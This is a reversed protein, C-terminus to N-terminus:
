ADHPECPPGWPSDNVCVTQPAVPVLPILGTRVGTCVPDVFMSGGVCVDTDVDVNEHTGATVRAWCGYITTCTLEAPDYVGGIVTACVSTSVYVDGPTAADACYPGDHDAAAPSVPAIAAAVAAIAVAARRIKM